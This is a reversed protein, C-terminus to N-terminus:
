FSNQSQKKKKRIILIMFIISGILIISILMMSIEETGDGIGGIDEGTEKEFEELEDARSEDFSLFSSTSEYTISRDYYGLAVVEYSAEEEPTFITSFNHEDGKDIDLENTEIIDVINGDKYIAFRIYVSNEKQGDNLYSATIEVPNGELTRRPSIDLNSIRGSSILEDEGYVDILSSTYDECDPFEIELLYQGEDLDLSINESFSSSLTPSVTDFTLDESQIIEESISDRFTIEVEPDIFVNGDNLFDFSIQFDDDENLNTNYNLDHISCDYIEVDSIETSLSVLISHTMEAVTDGELESEDRPSVLLRLHGEYNGDPQDSPPEAVVDIFAPNGASVNYLDQEPTIDIWTLNSGDRLSVNVELPIDEQTSIRITEEAFGDRVMQGFNIRPPSVALSQSLAGQSIFIICFVSLLFLSIGFKLKKNM